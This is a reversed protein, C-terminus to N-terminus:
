FTSPRFVFGSKIFISNGNQYINKRNQRLKKKTLDIISNSDTPKVIRVFPVPHIRIAIELFSIPGNRSVPNPLYKFGSDLRFNTKAPLISPNSWLFMFGSECMEQFWIRVNRSVLICWGRVCTVCKGSRPHRM